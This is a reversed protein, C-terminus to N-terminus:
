IVRVWTNDQEGYGKWKLLYEVKGSVIRKELIKEVVFEEEQEGESVTKVDTDNDSSVESGKKKGM